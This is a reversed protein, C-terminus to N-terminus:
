LVYAYFESTWLEREKRLDTVETVQVVVSSPAYARPHALALLRVKSIM